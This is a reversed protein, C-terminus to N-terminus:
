YYGFTYFFTSSFLLLVYNNLFMATCQFHHKAISRHQELVGYAVTFWYIGHQREMHLVSYHRGCCKVGFATRLCGTFYVFSLYHKRTVAGGLHQELAAYPVSDFYTDYHNMMPLVSTNEYLPKDLNSLVQDTPRPQVRYRFYRSSGGDVAAIHHALNLVAHKQRSFSATPVNSVYYRM